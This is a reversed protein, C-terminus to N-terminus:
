SLNETWERRSRSQEFWNSHRKLANAASGVAQAHSTFKARLLQQSSLANRSAAPARRSSRRAVRMSSSTSEGAVVSEFSPLTLIM